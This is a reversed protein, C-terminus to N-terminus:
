AVTRLARRRAQTQTRPTVDVLFAEHAAFRRRIREPAAGALSFRLDFYVRDRVRGIAWLAEAIASDPVAGRGGALDRPNRAVVVLGKAARGALALLYSRWDVDHAVADFAVALDCKPLAELAFPAPTVYVEAAPGYFVRAANAESESAAASVIRLGARALVGLCPARPGEGGGLPGELASAAELRRAWGVLVDDM